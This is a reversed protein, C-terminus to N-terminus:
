KGKYIMSFHYVYFSDIRGPPHPIFLQHSAQKGSCKPYTGFLTLHENFVMKGRLNYHAYLQRSNYEEAKM